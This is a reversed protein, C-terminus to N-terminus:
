SEREFVETQKCGPGKQWRGGSGKGGKRCRCRFRKVGGVFTLVGGVREVWCIWGRCRVRVARSLLADDLELLFDSFELVLNQLVVVIKVVHKILNCHEVLAHIGYPKEM